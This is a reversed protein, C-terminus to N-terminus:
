FKIAWVIYHIHNEAVQLTEVKYAVTYVWSMDNTANNWGKCTNLGKATENNNVCVYFPRRFLSLCTNLAVCFTITCICTTFLIILRKLTKNDKM